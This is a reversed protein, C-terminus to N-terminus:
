RYWRWRNSNFGRPEGIKAYFGIQAIAKSYGVEFYMGANPGFPAKLGFVEEFAVPFMKFIGNLYDNFEDISEQEIPDVMNGGITEELKVRTHAYGVGFGYYIDVKEANKIFHFNLRAMANLSSYQFNTISSFENYDDDIYTDTFKFKGLEYNASLGLGVRGGLMYDYRFHLPGVGKYSFSSTNTADETNVTFKFVQGLLQMASPYGYGVQFCSSGKQIIQAQTASSMILTLLFSWLVKKM